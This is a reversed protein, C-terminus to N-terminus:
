LRNSLLIRSKNKPKNNEGYLKLTLQGEFLLRFRTLDVSGYEVCVPNNAGINGLGSTDLSRQVEVLRQRNQAQM